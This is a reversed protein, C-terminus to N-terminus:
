NQLHNVTTIAAEFDGHLLHKAITELSEETARSWTTGRLQNLAGMAINM